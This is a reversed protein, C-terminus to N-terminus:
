AIFGTELSATKSDYSYDLIVSYGQEELKRTIVIIFLRTYRFVNGTSSEGSM